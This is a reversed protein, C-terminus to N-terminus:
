KLQKSMIIYHGTVKAQLSPSFPATGTEAYGLHRYFPLLPTRPSIVRLDVAVCGAGLFDEEAAAMLKRGLGTGQRRPDVALLGLYGRDGRLECYVCGAIGASDELILFRGKEFFERTGREDIRDGDFVPREVVFAANILKTLEAVESSIAVRVRLTGEGKFTNM